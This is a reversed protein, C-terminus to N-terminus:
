KGKDKYGSLVGCFFSWLFKDKLSCLFYFVWRIIFDWNIIELFGWRGKGGGSIRCFCNFDSDLVREWVGRSFGSDM